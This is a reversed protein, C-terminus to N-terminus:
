RGIQQAAFRTITISSSWPILPAETSFRGPNWRNSASIESPCTPMTNPRSILRRAREHASQCRSRSHAGHELNQQRVGVADVVRRIEVVPKQQTEFARHAFRLQVDKARPQMLALQVLSASAFQEGSVPMASSGSSCTREKTDSTNALNTSSPESVFVCAYKTALLM